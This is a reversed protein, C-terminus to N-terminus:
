SAQENFGTKQEFGFELAKLDDRILQQVSALDDQELRIKEYNEMISKVDTKMEEATRSLSENAERANPALPESRMSNLIEKILPDNDIKYAVSLLEDLPIRITGEIDEVREWQRAIEPSLEFIDELPVNYRDLTQNFSDVDMYVADVAENEERVSNIFERVTAESRGATKSEKMRNIVDGMVGAFYAAKINAEDEQVAKNQLSQDILGEEVERMIQNRSVVEGGAVAITEPLATLVGMLINLAAEEPALDEGVAAAGAAASAYGAVGQVASQVVSTYLRNGFQMPLLSGGLGSVGAQALSRRLAYDISEGMNKGENYQASYEAGASGAFDTTAAITAGQIAGGVPAVFRALRAADVTEGARRAISGAKKAVI